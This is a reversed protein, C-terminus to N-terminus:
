QCLFGIIKYEIPTIEISFGVVREFASLTYIYVDFKFCVCVISVLALNIINHVNFMSCTGLLSQLM